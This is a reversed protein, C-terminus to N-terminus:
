SKVNSVICSRHIKGFITILSMIGVKTIAVNKAARDAENIVSM